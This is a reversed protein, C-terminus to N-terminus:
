PTQDARRMVGIWRHVPGDEPVPTITTDVEILEGESTVMHHRMRYVRRETRAEMFERRLRERQDAPVYSLWQWGMLEDRGLNLWRAYTANVYSNGGDAECAFRAIHPDSDALARNEAEAMMLKHNIEDVAKVLEPIQKLAAMAEKLPGMLKRVRGRVWGGFALVAASAAAVAGIGKAWTFILEADM